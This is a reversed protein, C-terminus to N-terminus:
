DYYSLGPVRIEAELVQEKSPDVVQLGLAECDAVEIDGIEDLVVDASM